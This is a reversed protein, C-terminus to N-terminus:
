IANKQFSTIKSTSFLHTLALPSPHFLINLSPDQARPAPPTRTRTWISGEPHHSPAWTCRHHFQVSSFGCCVCYVCTLLQFYLSNHRHRYGPYLISGQLINSNPFFIPLSVLPGEANNRV